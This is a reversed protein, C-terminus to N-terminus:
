SNTAKSSHRISIPAQLWLYVYWPVGVQFASQQNLNMAFVVIQTIGCAQHATTLKITKCVCQGTPSVLILLKWLNLVAGPWFYRQTRRVVEIDASTRSSRAM